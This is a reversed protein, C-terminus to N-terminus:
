CRCVNARLAPANCSPNWRSRGYKGAHRVTSLRRSRGCDNCARSALHFNVQKPAGLFSAQGLLLFPQNISKRFCYAGVVPPSARISIFMSIYPIAHVQELRNNVGLTCVHIWIPLVTWSIFTRLLQEKREWVTNCIFCSCHGCRFSVTCSATAQCPEKLGKVCGENLRPVRERKLTVANGSEKARTTSRHKDWPAPCVNSSAEM